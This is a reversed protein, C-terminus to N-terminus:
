RRLRAVTMERYTVRVAADGGKNPAETEDKWSPVTQGGAAWVLSLAGRREAEQNKSIADVTM